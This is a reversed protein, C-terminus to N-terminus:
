SRTADYERRTGGAPYKEAFYRDCFGEVQSAAEEPSGGFRFRVLKCEGLRRLLEVQPERFHAVVEPLEELGNALYAVIEEMSVETFSAEEKSSRELLVFIEPLCHSSRKCGFVPEPDVEYAVEGNLSVAPEHPELEPFFTVADPLLKVPLSLGWADLGQEGRPSIYTWEDSLLSLGRRALTMTLTSKGVGSYGSLLVGRGKYLLCASHVAVIGLASSMTGVLVPLITRKWFEEDAATRSSFVGVVERDLLNFSMKDQASYSAFVFPGFGRFHPTYTRPETVCSNDIHIRITMAPECVVEGALPHAFFESVTKQVRLSNTYLKCARGAISLSACCPMDVSSIEQTTASLEEQHLMSIDADYGRITASNGGGFRFSLTTVVRHCM